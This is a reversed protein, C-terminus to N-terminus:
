HRFHRVGTLLCTVNRENCLDITDQDRKSGGPHVICNVGADILLAPGDNFPFFADSTAVIADGGGGLRDSAKEVAIRCSAVRDMQGAGAGLLQGRRGVAVANSTLHKVTVWMFGAHILLEESPVPGAAHRWQGLDPLKTDREQVLMGGPISRYTMERRRSPKLTPVSLLRVNKWRESLTALADDDYGPAIVVEFFKQGEAILKATAQDM